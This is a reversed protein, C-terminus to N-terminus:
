DPDDKKGKIVVHDSAVAECAAVLLVFPWIFAITVMGFIAGITVDIGEKWDVYTFFSTVAIGILYYIIVFIM